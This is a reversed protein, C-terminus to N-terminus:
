DHRDALTREFVNQTKTVAYGRREYFGRTEVRGTRSRIRLTTVGRARAWDEAAALLRLGVGRGRDREAVVFGGLEAFPDAELRHAVFAHIWGCVRGDSACAVLVLDGPSDLIARLRSESQATTTPYGLEGSLVALAAADDHRAERMEM